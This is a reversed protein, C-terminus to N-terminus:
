NVSWDAVLQIPAAGFLVSESSVQFDVLRSYVALLEGRMTFSSKESIHLNLYYRGKNLLFSSFKMRVKIPMEMNNRIVRSNNMTSCQAVNKLEMDTFSTGIELESVSSDVKISFEFTVDQGHRLFLNGSKELIKDEQLNMSFASEDNTYVVVQKLEAMGSGGLQVSGTKFESFYGDVVDEMKDSLVGVTGNRLLLGRNCIKTVQSISHSVFIVCTKEILKQLVNYSKNKFGVDGVSLVEDVLLIDPEMNVAVAFGLRVKMGSSYYQLPTDIFDELESFEVIKEFVKNVQKKSIGLVSANIYINERGTLVPNFGAGLEILAGVRGRMEIKGKDPKILGNLMKLLTSKGAGNRGILGLSEGRKLEFSVDKIAWFEKERLAIEGKNKGTFESGLDKLGYWLGRKLDLCFKKSVNDVKILTDSM